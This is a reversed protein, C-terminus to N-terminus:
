ARRRWVAPDRRCPARRSRVRRRLGPRSPGPPTLDPPSPAPARQGCRKQVCPRRLSDEPPSRDRRARLRLSRATSLQRLSLVQHLDAQSARLDPLRGRRPHLCIALRRGHSPDRRPGRRHAWPGLQAPLRSPVRQPSRLTLPECRSPPACSLRCRRPSARWPSRRRCPARPLFLMSWPRNPPQRPWQLQLLGSTRRPLLRLCLRRPLGWPDRPRGQRRCRRSRGM